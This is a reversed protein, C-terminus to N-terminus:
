GLNLIFNLDETQAISYKSQLIMKEPHQGYLHLIVLDETAHGKLELTGSQQTLMISTSIYFDETTDFIADKKGNTYVEIVGFPKLSRVIVDQKDGFKMGERLELFNPISETGILVLHTEEKSTCGALLLLLLTPFLRIM